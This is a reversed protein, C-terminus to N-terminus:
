RNADGRPHSREVVKHLRERSVHTYIETTGIDSHGLLEQVLRLDAGGELLHTAFSHRLVHPTIKREIGALLAYHRIRYWVAQRTVGKGRNSLFVNDPGDEGCWRPRVEDLYRTLWRVAPEGLPALRQRRGKGFVRCVRSHLQLDDLRLDVLESVRLGGAYLVELIARDRIGLPTREDPAEILREIEKLGLVHPIRRGRKPRDLDALPDTALVNEARLFALLQSIASLARNRSTASIGREELRILHQRLRPADLARVDCEGENQALAALDRGYADITASSLGREVALHTLFADVARDLRM